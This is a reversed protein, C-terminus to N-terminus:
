LLRIDSAWSYKLRLITESNYRDYLIYVFLIYIIFIVAEDYNDDLTCIAKCTILISQAKFIHTKFYM